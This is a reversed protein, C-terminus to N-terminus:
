WLVGASNRFFDLTQAIDGSCIEHMAWAVNMVESLASGDPYMEVDEIGEIEPSARILIMRWDFDPSRPDAVLLGTTTDVFGTKVLTHFIDASVSPVIPNSAWVTADSFFSPDLKLPACERHTATIGRRECTGLNHRVIRDTYHDRPMTVFEVATTSHRGGHNSFSGSSFVIESWGMIQSSVATLVNPKMSAALKGVFGGGSSAGLAFLPRGVLGLRDQLVSIIQITPDIDEISWCRSFERDTSSISAVALGFRLSEVVINREEPLGLCHDCEFFDSGSHSCGHFLMLLGKTSGAPTQWMVDLGAINGTKVERSSTVTILAFVILFTISFLVKIEM